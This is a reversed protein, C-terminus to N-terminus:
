DKTVRNMEALGILGVLVYPLWTLGRRRPPLSAPRVRRLRDLLKM